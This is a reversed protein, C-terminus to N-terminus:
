EPKEISSSGSITYFHGEYDLNSARKLKGTCDEVGDYEQEDVSIELTKFVQRIEELREESLYDLTNTKKIEALIMM